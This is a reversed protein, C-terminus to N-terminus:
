KEWIGITLVTMDDIAYGDTLKLVQDLIREALIGANDTKIKGILKALEKNADEVHLYELVGDTIMVLFDGENL